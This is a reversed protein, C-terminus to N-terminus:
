INFRVTLYVIDAKFDFNDDNSDRKMKQYSLGLQVFSRPNWELSVTNYKFHDQRLPDAGVTIGEFDRRQRTYRYGLSTKETMNWVPNLTFSDSVYNNSYSETLSRSEQYSNLDRRVNILFDVKDTVGWKLDASGVYGSYNRESFNDHERDLHAVRATVNTKVTPNWVVRVETENQTFGSDQLAAPDETRNYDGNVKRNVLAISNKASTVYKVGVEGSKATYDSEEIFAQSNTQDFHSVSSILHLPGLAEWEVDFRSKEVTRINRRLEPTAPVYDVFSILSETRSRSLNGYLSPSIKWAWTANLNKGTYDLYSSDRYSYDTLMADVIIRQLSYSKDFRLGLTTTRLEDSIERGEPARFLNDDRSIGAGVILSLTDPHQFSDQDAWVTSSSLM